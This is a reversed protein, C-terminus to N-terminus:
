TAVLRQSLERLERLQLASMVPRVHVEISHRYATAALEAARSGDTTLVAYVIRRDAPSSQREVLGARELRDALKTFGGSTMGLNASLVSMALRHQEARLLSTLVIFSSPAVGSDQEVESMLRAQIRALGTVVETWQDLYDDEGGALPAGM